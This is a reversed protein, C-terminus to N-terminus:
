VVEAPLELAVAQGSGIDEVPPRVMGPEQLGVDPLVVIEARVKRRQVFEEIEPQFLELARQMRHCHGMRPQDLWRFNAGDVALKAQMLLPRRVVSSLRCVVSSPDYRGPKASKRTQRGNDTTLGGDYVDRM